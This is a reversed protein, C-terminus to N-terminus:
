EASRVRVMNKIWVQTFKPECFGNVARKTIVVSGADLGLHSYYSFIYYTLDQSDGLMNFYLSLM